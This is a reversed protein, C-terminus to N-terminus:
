TSEFSCFCFIFFSYCFFIRIAQWINLTYYVYNDFTRTVVINSNKKLIYGELYGM